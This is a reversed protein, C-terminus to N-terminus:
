QKTNFAFYSIIKPQRVETVTIIMCNSKVWLHNIDGKSIPSIEFNQKFECLYCLGGPFPSLGSFSGTGPMSPTAMSVAPTGM